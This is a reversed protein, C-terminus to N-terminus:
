RLRVFTVVKLIVLEYVAGLLMLLSLLPFSSAVMPNVRAKIMQNPTKKMILTSHKKAQRVGQCANGLAPLTTFM